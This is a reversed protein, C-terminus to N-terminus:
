FMTTKHQENKGSRSKHSWKGGNKVELFPKTYALPWLEFKNSSVDYSNQTVFLLNFAFVIRTQHIASSTSWILSFSIWDDCKIQSYIRSPHGYCSKHKISCFIIESLQSCQRLLDQVHTFSCTSTIVFNPVAHEVLSRALLSLKYKRTLICFTM